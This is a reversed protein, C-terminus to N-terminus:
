GLLKGAERRVAPPYLNQKAIDRVERQPAARLVKGIQTRDIRPNSLLARRIEGNTLWGANSVILDLLPRPLNGKRAIRAVEGQTLKPNRLLDEWVLSGFMRELQIRETLDGGHALQFRQASSLHKINKQLEVGPDLQVESTGSGPDPAKREDTVFRKLTERAEADFTAFVLGTGANEGEGVALVVRCPLTTKSRDVPHVLVLDCEENVPHGALGKIFTGGKSLNKEFEAALEALSGIELLIQRKEM